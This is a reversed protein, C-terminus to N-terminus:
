AGQRAVRWVGKLDAVVTAWIDVRSDEDDVWHVPLELVRLGAREARVLLETDFFWGDDEISPLLRRAVDARLAKFGCQADRVRSRLAARVLVNYGRSLIERKAGRTVTAGPALRSGVAVDSHGSLLPAVLPLLADLDTSLDVDMYAVVRAESRSWAARLARGRGREDLHVASVGPLEDALARAVDWTGDTSGNDVVTIRWSFPFGDSLYDHAARVSLALVHAENYAPM